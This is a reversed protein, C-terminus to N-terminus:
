RFSTNSDIFEEIMQVINNNKKYKKPKFTKLKDFVNELTDDEYLPLIYGLRSFENIIQLQHDNTHENYKKLRPVAIVKKGKQIAETIFGVGGHTIIVDAENVLKSMEDRPIFDFMEINKTDYKTCGVQAIVKDKIIKKNVLEDVYKLLRSFIKYQTGLLVLIM